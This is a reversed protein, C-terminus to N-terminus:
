QIRKLINVKEQLKLAQEYYKISSDYDGKKEDYLQGIIRLIRPNSELRQYITIAKDIEGRQLLSQAQVEDDEEEKKEKEDDDEAVIPLSFYFTRNLTAFM